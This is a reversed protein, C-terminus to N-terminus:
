IPKLDHLDFSNELYDEGGSSIDNDINMAFVKGGQGGVSYRTRFEIKLSPILMLDENNIM